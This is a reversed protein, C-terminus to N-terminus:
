FIYKKDALYELLANICREIDMIDTEITLDPNAPEEFPASIGTFEPIVGNKAKEYLGKPDRSICADLSAKVYVENYKEGLCGRAIDRLENTPTIFSALVIIGADAFLSAVEAARRINERRGQPSFDLDKNLGERLNDGDLRYSLVGLSALQKELEQTLTSKGSGSLGTMWLVTGKQKSSLIRQSNDIISNSHTLNGGGVDVSSTIIGGGVIEYNYTLVFRNTTGPFDVTDFALPADLTFICDAAMNACVEQADSQSLNTADLLMKVEELEARVKATGLKLTYSCGKKLSERGLWFINARFKSSIEMPPADAPCVVEGRRVYIQQTMTFGAASGAELSNVPADANFVEITKVGCRKKSPYFIVEDGVNLTGTEISGAIIRRDDGDLTFKYVDQVPMRLPLNTPAAPSAFLDMQELVTAGNYWPMNESKSVINDGQMGSVPIFATPVVNIQNLFATYNKQISDFVDKSYGVTDMKNILVAIQKVGLMSLLYSHRMSNEMIGEKADIVLLAAEARAAGTVMNKLFEVHGPADLIIYNRKETKFFARAADITIGQSREDKLADLLFAYEFPKSNRRCQEQIAELKGDPLVHTDAMLRGIITSKGHDVHGVIVINMDERHDVTTAKQTFTILNDQM